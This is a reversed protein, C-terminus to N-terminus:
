DFLGRAMWGSTGKRNCLMQVEWGAARVAETLRCASALTIAWERDTLQGDEGKRLFIAVLERGPAESGMGVAVVRKRM